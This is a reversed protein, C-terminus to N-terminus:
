KSFLGDIFTTVSDRFFFLSVLSGLLIVLFIILLTIFWGTEFLSKKPKQQEYSSITQAPAKPPLSNDLSDNYTKVPRLTQAGQSAASDIKLARVADDVENDSYGANKFSQAAQSITEGRLISQKIGELVENNIPPM